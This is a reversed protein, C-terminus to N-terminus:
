EFSGGPLPDVPPTISLNCAIVCALVLEVRRGFLVGRSGDQQGQAQYPRGGMPVISEGVFEYKLQGDGQDSIRLSVAELEEEGTFSAVGEFVLDFPLHARHVLPDTVRFRLAEDNSELLAVQELHVAEIESISPATRVPM